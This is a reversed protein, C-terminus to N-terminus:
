EDEYDEVEEGTLSAFLQELYHPSGATYLAKVAQAANAYGSVEIRVCEGTEYTLELTFSGSDALNM